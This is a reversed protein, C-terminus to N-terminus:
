TEKSRPLYSVSYARAFKVSERFISQWIFCNRQSTTIILSDSEKTNKGQSRFVHTNILRARFKFKIQMSIYIYHIQWLCFLRLHFYRSFNYMFHCCLHKMSTLGILYSYHLNTVGVSIKRMLSGIFHCNWATLHLSLQKQSIMFALHLFYRRQTWDCLTQIM